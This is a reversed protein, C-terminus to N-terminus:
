EDDYGIDKMFTNEVLNVGPREGYKFEVGTYSLYIIRRCCAFQVEYGAVDPLHVLRINMHTEHYSEKCRPCTAIIPVRSLM